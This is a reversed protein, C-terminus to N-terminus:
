SKHSHCICYNYLRLCRFCASSFFNQVTNKGNKLSNKWNSIREIESCHVYSDSFRFNQKLQHKFEIHSTKSLSGNKEEFGCWRQCDKFYQVNHCKLIKSYFEYLYINFICYIHLLKKFSKLSRVYLFECINNLVSFAQNKLEHIEHSGWHGCLCLFLTPEM